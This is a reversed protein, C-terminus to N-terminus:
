NFHLRLPWSQTASAKPKHYNPRAEPQGCVPRGVPTGGVRFTSPVCALQLSARNTPARWGSKKRPQITSRLANELLAHLTEELCAGGAPRLTGNLEHFILHRIAISKAM